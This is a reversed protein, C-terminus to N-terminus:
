HQFDVEEVETEDLLEGNVLIKRIYKEEGGTLPSSFINDKDKEQDLILSINTKNQRLNSLTNRAHQARSVKGDYAKSIRELIINEM